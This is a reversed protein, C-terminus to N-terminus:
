ALGRVSLSPEGDEHHVQVAELVDVVRETVAHAIVHQAFHAGAQLVRHASASHMARRPPSSNAMRTRARLLRRVEGRGRALDDGREFRRNEEFPLREVDAGADADRVEGLVPLSACVSTRLASMAMYAALRLLVPKAM